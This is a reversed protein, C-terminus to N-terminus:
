SPPAARRRQSVSRTVLFAIVPVVLWQLLPALGTGLPPIRPMTETYAWSRRLEVNLWESYVAWALGAAITAIAVPGFRERPWDPVGLVLLAWGLTALGILADGSTCHLIAYGIEATTGTWWLTYLPMQAAEWVLMAPVLVTLYTRQAALWNPRPPGQETCGDHKM